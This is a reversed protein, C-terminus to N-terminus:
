ACRAIPRRLPAPMRAVLLGADVARAVAPHVPIQAVVPTGLCAEVDHASLSREPEAVLVIGDRRLSSRQARRLALYCPRLVLLSRDARAVVSGAPDDADRVLGADVVVTEGTSPVPVVPSSGMIAAASMAASRSVLRVGTGAVAEGFVCGDDNADTPEPIGLVAPQDGALDVLTVPQHRAFELALAAAVVSTGV